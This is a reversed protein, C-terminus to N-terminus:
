RPIDHLLKSYLNSGKSSGLSSSAPAGQLRSAGKLNTYVVELLQDKNGTLFTTTCM